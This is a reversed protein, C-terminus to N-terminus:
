KKSIEITRKDKLKKQEAVSKKLRCLSLLIAIAVAVDVNCKSLDNRGCFGAADL